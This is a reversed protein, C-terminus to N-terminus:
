AHAGEMKEPDQAYFLATLSLGDRHDLLIDARMGHDQALAHIEAPLLGLERASGAANEALDLASALTPAPSFGEALMSTCVSREKHTRADPIGTVSLGCTQPVPLLLGALIGALIDQPKGAGSIKEWPLVLKASLPPTKEDVLTVDYRFKMLENYASGPKPRTFARMRALREGQLSHWFEPPVLLEEEDAMSNLEERFRAASTGGPLECLLRSIRFLPLAAANRVDGIFVKGGKRIHKLGHELAHLLYATDPFYQVVSNYVLADFIEEGVSALDAAEAQCLDVDLNELQEPPLKELAKCLRNLAAASFDVGVYRACEGALRLLLLGHGCGVELISDAHLDRIADLTDKLWQRMENGPIPDGTCASKWLSFNELLPMSSDMQRYTEEYVAAWQRIRQRREQETM